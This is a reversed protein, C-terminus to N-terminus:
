VNHPFNDARPVLSRRWHSWLSIGFINGSLKDDWTASARSAVIVLPIETLNDMLYLFWFNYAIEPLNDYM